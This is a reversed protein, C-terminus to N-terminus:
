SRRLPPAACVNSDHVSIQHVILDFGCCTMRSHHEDAHVRTFGLANAYFDAVKQLDQVFLVASVSPSEM